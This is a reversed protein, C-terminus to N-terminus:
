CLLAVSFLQDTLCVMDIVDGNNNNNNNNNIM